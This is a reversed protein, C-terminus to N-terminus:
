RRSRAVVKAPKSKQKPVPRRVRRTRKAAAQIVVPRSRTGRKKRPARAALDAVRWAQVEDFFHQTFQDHEHAPFLAQVKLRIADRCADSGFWENAVDDLKSLHKACFREFEVTDFRARAIKAYEAVM